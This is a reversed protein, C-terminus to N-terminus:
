VVDDTLSVLAGVDGTMKSASETENPKYMNSEDEDCKEAVDATLV